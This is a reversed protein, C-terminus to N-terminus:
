LIFHHILHSLLTEVDLLRVQRLSRENLGVLICGAHLGAKTANRNCDQIHIQRTTPAFTLYCSPQSLQNQIDSLATGNVSQENVNILIDGRSIMSYLRLDSKSVRKVTLVQNCGVPVLTLPFKVNAVIEISKKRTEDITEALSVGLRDEKWKFPILHSILGRIWRRRRVCDIDRVRPSANFELLDFSPAYVWGNADSLTNTMCPKWMELWQYGLPAKLKKPFRALSSSGDRNTFPLPDDKTLYKRHWTHGRRRQNQYIEVTFEQRRLHALGEMRRHFKAHREAPFM